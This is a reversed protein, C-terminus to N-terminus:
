RFWISKKSKYYKLADQLEDKTIPDVYENSDILKTSKDFTSAWLTKFDQLWDDNPISNIYWNNEETKKLEKM